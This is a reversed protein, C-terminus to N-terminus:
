KQKFDLSIGNICYRLGTPQPGDDFVHGLHGGCKACVVEIRPMWGISSDNNTTVSGNEKAPQWYSPWGTGSDFKHDSYFLLNGCGRCTYEGKEHNDWYKGTFARETGKKRLVYFEQESLEKKWEDDTKVVEFVHNSESQSMSSGM